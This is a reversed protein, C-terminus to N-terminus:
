KGQQMKAKLAAKQQEQIAEYQKWQDDTFIKRLAEDAEGTIEKLGRVTSIKARREQRKNRPPDSKKEQVESFYEMLEGTKKAMVPVCQQLQADSLKLPDKLKAVQKAGVQNLILGHIETQIKEWEKQQDPTLLQKMGSEFEAQVTKLQGIAAKKDVEEGAEIKEALPDLKTGLEDVLKLLADQQADTLQLRAKWDMVMKMAAPNPEGAMAVGAFLCMLISASAIIRVM